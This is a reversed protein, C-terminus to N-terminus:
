IVDRVKPFEQLWIRDKELQHQLKDWYAFAKVTKEENEKSLQIGAEKLEKSKNNFVDNNVHDEGPEKLKLM